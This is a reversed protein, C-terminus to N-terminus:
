VEQEKIKVIMTRSLDLHSGLSGLVVMATVKEAESRERVESGASRRLDVANKISHHTYRFM